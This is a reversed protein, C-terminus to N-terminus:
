RNWHVCRGSAASGLCYRRDLLDEEALKQRLADTLRGDLLVVDSFRAAASQEYQHARQAFTRCNWNLNWCEGYYDRHKTYHMDQYCYTVGQLANDLVLISGCNSSFLKEHKSMNQTRPSLDIPTIITANIM